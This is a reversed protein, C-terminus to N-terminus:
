QKKKNNRTIRKANNPTTTVAFNLKGVNSSAPMYLNYTINFNFIYESLIIYRHKM